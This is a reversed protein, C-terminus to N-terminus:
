RDRRRRLLMGAAVAAAGLSAPEPTASITFNDFAFTESATNASSSIRFGFSTTNALVTAFSDSGSGLTFAGPALSFNLTQATSSEAQAVTSVYTTAGDSISLQLLGTTSTTLSKTLVSATNYSSFNTATVFNRRVTASQGAATFSVPIRGSQAGALLSTSSTSAYLNDAVNGFRLWPTSTSSTAIASGATYSEFNDITLVTAARSRPTLLAVALGLAAIFKPASIESM